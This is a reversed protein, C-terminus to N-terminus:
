PTLLSGRGPVEAVCCFDGLWTMRSRALAALESAALAERAIEAEIEATSILTADPRTEITAVFGCGGAGVQRSCRWLGQLWIAAENCDCPPAHCAPPPAREFGCGTEGKSCWWRGLYWVTPVGCQCAM